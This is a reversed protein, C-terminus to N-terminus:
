VGEMEEGVRQKLFLDVIYEGKKVLNKLFRSSKISKPGNAAATVTL